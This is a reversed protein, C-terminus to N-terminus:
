ERGNAFQFLWQRAEDRLSLDCLTWRASHNKFPLSHFSLNGEFGTAEIISQIPRVSIEHSIWQPRKGLRVLRSPWDVEDAAPHRFEGEYHSHCIMGSWLAAITDDHLGIYNCAIAGRSFGALLVRKPDGHYQACIERVTEICYRKTASVDGWWKIAHKGTNDVFPMSIWIFGSGDSLGFGMMCGEVTGDSVDGLANSYGGNGPYEVIVPWSTDPDWDKPLYLAHYVATEQWGSTTARVRMGAKPEGGTIPPVDLITPIQNLNTQAQLNAPVIFVAWCLPLAVLLMLFGHWNLNVRIQNMMPKSLQITDRENPLSCYLRGSRWLSIWFTSAGTKAAAM